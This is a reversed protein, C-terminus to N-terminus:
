ALANFAEFFFNASRKQDAVPAPNRQSRCAHHEVLLSVSDDAVDVEGIFRRTAGGAAFQALQTEAHAYRGYM